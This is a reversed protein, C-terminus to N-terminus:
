GKTIKTGTYAQEVGQIAGVYGEISTILSSVVDTTQAFSSAVTAYDERYSDSADSIWGDCLTTVSTTMSATTAQFEEVCLKLKSIEEGIDEFSMSLTDTM